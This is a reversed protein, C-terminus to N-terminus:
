VVAARRQFQPAVRVQGVALGLLRALLVAACQGRQIHVSRCATADFQLHLFGAAGYGCRRLRDSMPRVSMNFRIAAIATRTESSAPQLVTLPQNPPLFASALFAASGASSTSKSGLRRTRLAQDTSRPSPSRRIPARWPEATAS